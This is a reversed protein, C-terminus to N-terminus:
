LARPYMHRTAGWIHESGACKAQGTQRMINAPVSRPHQTANACPPQHLSVTKRTLAAPSITFFRSGINMRGPGIWSGAILDAELASCPQNFILSPSQPRIDPPVPFLTFAYTCGSSWSLIELPVINPQALWRWRHLHSHPWYNWAVLVALISLAPHELSRLWQAPLCHVPIVYLWNFTFTFRLINSAHGPRLTTRPSPPRNEM